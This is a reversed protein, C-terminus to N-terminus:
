TSVNLTYNRIEVFKITCLGSESLRLGVSIGLSLLDLFFFRLLKKFFQFGGM